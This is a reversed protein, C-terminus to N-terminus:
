KYKKIIDSRYKLLAEFDKLKYVAYRSLSTAQVMLIFYVILGEYNQTLKFNESKWYNKNAGSL